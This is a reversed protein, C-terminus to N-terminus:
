KRYELTYEIKGMSDCHEDVVKFGARRYVEFAVQNDKYVYLRISQAGLHKTAVELAAITANTGIGHGRTDAEGVLIKGFLCEKDKIDYLSLSGVIRKFEVIEEIAFFMENPNNLVSNFWEIQMEPTIFPIKKLYKSNNPNNRWIRIIEIDTKELPRLRVNKYEFIINHKM